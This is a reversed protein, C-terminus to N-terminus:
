SFSKIKEMCFHEAQGKLIKVKGFLYDLEEQTIIYDKKYRAEVYASRLLDFLRREEKTVRPFINGLKPTQEGVLAAIKSLDHTKPRYGTFVLLVAVFLAETIQHLHFAANNWEKDEINHEYDKLFSQARGMWFAYERQALDKREKPTLAKPESLNFNGSDYLLIGERKIDMYFYNGELLRENVFHINDIILNIPTNIEPDNQLAEEITNWLSTNEELKKSKVIVLIDFDSQYEYTVHDEVYSDSVWDGRAFSGFLIIIEVDGRGTILEVTKQLEAQKEPPLHELSNRMTTTYCM